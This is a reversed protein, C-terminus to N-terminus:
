GWDLKAYSGSIDHLHQSAKESLTVKVDPCCEGAQLALLRRTLRNMATSLKRVETEISSLRNSVLNSTTQDQEQMESSPNSSQILQKLNAIEQLIMIQEQKM